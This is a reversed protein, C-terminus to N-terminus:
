DRKKPAPAKKGAIAERLREEIAERGHLWEWEIRLAWLPLEGGAIPALKVLDKETCVIARARHQRAATAIRDWDQRGYAHHDPFVIMPLTPRDVSRLTNAFAAPNGIGCVPQLPGPLDELPLQNANGDVWVTSQESVIALPIGPHHSDIQQLLKRQADGALTRGRTVIVADARALSQPPERLLGRPLLHNWGWPRTADILVLDVDRALRRHQFGDDLILVDAALRDVAQRAVAVRDPSQLHPVNPLRRALEMSEDNAAGRRKAGYGRSLIVCRHGQQSLWSALWHVCPTKGTGGVTLNGVSVVTAPSRFSALWARDYMRNRAGVVFRYPLEAGALLLRAATAGVGRRAGSVVSLWWQEVRHPAM